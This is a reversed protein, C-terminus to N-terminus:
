EGQVALLGTFTFIVESAEGEERSIVLDTFVSIETSQFMMAFGPGM